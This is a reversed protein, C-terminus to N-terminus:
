TEVLNFFFYCHFHHQVPLPTVQQEQQKATGHCEQCLCMHPKFTRARAKKKEKLPISVEYKKDDWYQKYCPHSRMETFLVLTM